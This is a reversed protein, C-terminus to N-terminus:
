SATRKNESGTGLAVVTPGNTLKAIPELDSKTHEQAVVHSHADVRTPLDPGRGHDQPITHATHAYVGARQRDGGITLAHRELDSTDGRFVPGFPALHEQEEGTVDTVVDGGM